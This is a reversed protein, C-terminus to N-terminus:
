LIGALQSLSTIRYTALSDQQEDTFDFLVQDIGALRAGDIDVEANDGVMLSAEASANALKLAYNFIAADPKNAGAEESTIVNAFYPRLRSRELKTYQVEVFGNTIIHLRYKSKLYTLIEYVHPFLNTKTPSITVYDNAIAEIIFPDTIGFDNLCLGFRQVRLVEKSIEGRRYDSWLRHNHRHYVEIFTEVDPIGAAKLSHKEFIEKLTELSNTEFDWLTHDLDFFIDQYLKKTM